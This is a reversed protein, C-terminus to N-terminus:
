WPDGPEHAALNAAQQSLPGSGDACWHHVRAPRQELREPQPQVPAAPQSVPASPSPPHPHAPAQAKEPRPRPQPTWPKGAEECRSCPYENALRYIWGLSIREAYGQECVRQIQRYSLHDRCRLNHVLAVARDLEAQTRNRAPYLIGHHKGRKTVVNLMVGMGNM